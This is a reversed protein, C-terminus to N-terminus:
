INAEWPARRTEPPLLPTGVSVSIHPPIGLGDMDVVDEDFWELEETEMYRIVCMLERQRKAVVRQPRVRQVAIQLTTPMTPSSKERCICSHASVSKISAHYLGCNGCIRRQLENQLSRCAFDYPLGKAFKKKARAPIVGNGIVLHVFLSPFQANGDDPCCQLGDETQLLPLPPPLFREKVVTFYSSIPEDCCSRDHCKVVQLMYQSERVHKAHWDRDREILLEEHHSSVVYEAVTPHGDIITHSWIEALVEGAHAFNQKELEENVTEGCENLHSGFRNHPLVIGTLDHSLLAIRREVHNCASRGPANMAVFFADLKYTCFYDVACQITKAYRPNEDPGGDVTVIMVPKPLGDHCFMNDRFEPLSRIRKMDHLHHLASSSSHMASRIGVYTPGSYTVGAVTKICNKKISIAAIVSPILKHQAAVVLDHDSLRVKYEMHMILPAQKNAATLGIPIRAKDDQSHFTVEDPGLLSALEELNSVSAGAFFTDQHNSHQDNQARMLKVPVTQCHRKGERTESNRPLLRLYVSSRSLQFGRKKLSCTLDDLTKVTRIVESCCRKNAASGGIAIDVITKHLLNEDKVISPRGVMKRKLQKRTDKDILNDLKRKFNDRYRQQREQNKKCKQLDSKLADLERQKKKLDQCEAETLLGQGKRKYLYNVYDQKDCVATRLKEQKPAPFPKEKEKRQRPIDEINEVEPKVDAQREVNEGDAKLVQDLSCKQENDESMGCHSKDQQLSRETFTHINKTCSLRSSIRTSKEGASLSDENLEEKMHIDNSAQLAHRHLCGAEVPGTESQSVYDYPSEPETKVVVISDQSLSDDPSGPEVKVVVISDPVQDPEADGVRVNQADLIRFGSIGADGGPGVINGGDSDSMSDSSSPPDRNM